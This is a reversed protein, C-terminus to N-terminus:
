WKNINVKELNNFNYSNIFKNLNRPPKNNLVNLNRKLQNLSDIGIILSDVKKLSNVFLLSLESLTLNNKKSFNKIFKIPEFLESFNKKIKKNSMSLLGQQFISRVNIEIKKKKLKKLTDYNTFNKNLLNIPIQLVNINKNLYKIENIEYISLGIKKINFKEKLKLVKNRFKLDLYDQTNHFYICEIKKFHGSYIKLFKNFNNRDIKTYIKVNYNTFYELIKKDITGYNLSTDFILIKNKKCFNFIKKIELNKVKSKNAVGYRLGFKACGIIIKKKM